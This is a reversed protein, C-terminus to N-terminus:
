DNSLLHRGNLPMVPRSNNPFLASFRHIQEPAATIPTTLVIWTVGEICPPTTLSGEYEIFHRDRPLLQAPDVVLRMAEHGRPLHDFLAHFVPTEPGERVFVALVLRRGDVSRHALHIELPLHVGNLTHESPHHFHFQQLEFRTDGFDLFDGARVRDEITHGNNVETSPTLGYHVRLPPLHAHEAHLDDIDVPSQHRGSSCDRYGQSLHGWAGPGAQGEYDWHAHADEHAGRLCGAALVVLSLSLRVM